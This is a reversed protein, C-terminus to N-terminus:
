YGTRKLIISSLVGAATSIVISTILPVVIDERMYWPVHIPERGECGDCEPRDSPYAPHAPPPCWHCEGEAVFSCPPCTAAASGLAGLPANTPHILADMDMDVPQWGTGYHDFGVAAEDLVVVPSEADMTGM